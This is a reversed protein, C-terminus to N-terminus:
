NPRCAGPPESGDPSLPEPGKVSPWSFCAGRRPRDPRIRRGANLEVARQFVGGHLWRVRDHTIVEQITKLEAPSYVASGIRNTPVAFCYEVFAIGWSVLIVVALSVAKFELHGYWALTMFLNSLFLMLIPAIYPWHSPQILSSAFSM